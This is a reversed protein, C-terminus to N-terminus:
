ISRGQSPQSPAQGKPASLNGLVEGSKQVEAKTTVHEAWTKGTSPSPEKSKQFYEKLEGLVNAFSRAHIEKWNVGEIASQRELPVDKLAKKLSATMRPEVDTLNTTPRINTPNTPESM